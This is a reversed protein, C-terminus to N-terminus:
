DHMHYEQVLAFQRVGLDYARQMLKAAPEVIDAIRPSALPGKYCFGEVLDASITAVEEPRIRKDELFSSLDLTPLSVAWQNLWDLFPKSATALDAASSKETIPISM